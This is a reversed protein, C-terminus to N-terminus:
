INASINANAACPAAALQPGVNSIPGSNSIPVLWYPPQSCSVVNLISNTIGIPIVFEIKFTAEQEWGGYQSTGVEFEPGIELTPGCNAAAGHAAFALILALIYRM